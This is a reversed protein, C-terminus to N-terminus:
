AGTCGTRTACVGPSRQQRERVIDNVYRFNADSDTGGVPNWTQGADTSKFIGAGRIGDPNFFGEGTGAYLIQSNAPDM